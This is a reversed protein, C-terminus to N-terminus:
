ENVQGEYFRELTPSVSLISFKQSSSICRETLRSRDEFNLNMIFKIRDILALIEGEKIWFGNIGEIISDPDTAGRTIVMPCGCANAEHIIMPHGHTTNDNSQAYLLTATAMSYLIILDEQCIRGLLYVKDKLDLEEILSEFRERVKESCRGVIVLASEKKLENSSAFAHLLELQGKRWKVEGVTLLLKRNMLKPFRNHGQFVRCFIDTDVVNPIITIKRQIIKPMVEFIHKSGTTIRSCLLNGVLRITSRLISRPTKWSLLSYTGHLTMLPTALKLRAALAIAPAYPEVLVHVVSRFPIYKLGQIFIKSQSSLSLKPNPLCPIGFASNEHTLIRIPSTFLQAMKFITSSYSCWGDDDGLNSTVLVLRKM